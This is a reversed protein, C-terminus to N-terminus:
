SLSQGLDLVWGGWAEGQVRRSVAEGESECNTNRYYINTFM